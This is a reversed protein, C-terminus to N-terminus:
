MLGYKILISAIQNVKEFSRGSGMNSLCIISIGSDPYHAMETSFGWDGGDWSIKTRGKFDSFYLGFAQNDREHEFKPTELMQRYYEEEFTNPNLLDIAWRALDEVTSYMGSGGFHPSNRHQQIWNGESTIKIGYNAYGEINEPTRFNYGMARNPIVRTIDDHVLSNEMGMPQFLFASTYEAFSMGTVTEIIKSIIMFNVNVYAWRTGPEFELADVSLSREIAEDVTFYHFPSWPEGNTRPIHYYDTLGSTNYVLHRIQIEDFKAMEPLYGSASDNLNIKGESILIALSAATFRKSVSALNFSTAANIPQNYELNAVGFGNSYVLTSGAVIGVAFGPSSSNDYESFIAEIESVASEPLQAFGTITSAFFFSLLLLPIRM